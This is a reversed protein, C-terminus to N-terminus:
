KADKWVMLCLLEWVPFALILFQLPFDSSFYFKSVPLLRLFWVTCHKQNVSKFLGHFETDQEFDCSLGHCHKPLVPKRTGPKISKAGVANSHDCCLLLGQTRIFWIVCSRFFLIISHRITVKSIMPFSVNILLYFLAM